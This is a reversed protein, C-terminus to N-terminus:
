KAILEKDEIDKRRVMIAIFFIITSFVAIIAFDWGFTIIHKGGFSGYYSILGLGILYLPMWGFNKWNLDPHNEKTKKYTILRYLALYVYGVGLVLLMTKVVHWSDWYLLLTCIYFAVMCMYNALPLKFPRKINPKEKRLSMCAIPGVTYSFVFLSVFVSAMQQWSPFPLFFILGIIFNITIALYPIGKKNLKLMWQPMYGNKSMGYNIRATSATYILGTGLPSIIADAYIVKIFWIVWFVSLTGLIGAIPGADGKFRLGSWGGHALDHPNIGGIFSVQILTYLIICLILAAIIAFPISKQPNNAEAALQITSTFGIFSFVVGASPLAALVGHLGFPAFKHTTFNSFHFNMFLLIIVTAVPILVKWIVITNSTKAFLKMGLTNFICLVLMLLSASAIGINSLQTTGNNHILLSPFFNACYQMIAMCEIPAVMVAALYSVLAISFSTLAGHTFQSFRVMGGAVPIAAALESFVLAIVM